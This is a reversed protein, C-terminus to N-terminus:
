KKVQTATPPTYPLPTPAAAIAADAGAQTATLPQVTSKARKYATFAGAILAIVTFGATVDSNIKSPDTWGLVAAAKPMLSALTSAITVVAGIMTPSQYWPIAIPALNLPDAM